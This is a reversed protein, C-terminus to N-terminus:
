DRLCSFVTISIQVQSTVLHLFVHVLPLSARLQKAQVANPHKRGMVADLSSVIEEAFFICIIHNHFSLCCSMNVPTVFLLWKIAVPSAIMRSLFNVKNWGILHLYPPITAKIFDSSSSSTIIYRCAVFSVWLWIVEFLKLLIEMVYWFWKKTFEVLLGHAVINVQTVSARCITNYSPFYM